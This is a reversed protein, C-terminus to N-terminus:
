EVVMMMSRVLDRYEELHMIGMDKNCARCVPMMNDVTTPGGLALPVVHGCEMDHFELSKECTYCRGVLSKPDNINEWVKIRVAVPIRERRKEKTLAYVDTECPARNQLVCHIILDLWEYRRWAGLFCVDSPAKAVCDDFRKLADASLKAKNTPAEYFHKLWDNFAAVADILKQSAIGAHALRDGVNRAQLATKLGECGLYPCHTKLGSKIYARYKSAFWAVFPGEVHEWTTQLELPHIPTHKNIRGYYMSLETRDKVRHLVIPVTVDSLSYGLAKLMAFAKLRHQGDVVFLEDDLRAVTMSQLISFCGHRQMELREDEVMQLVYTENLTRQLRPITFTLVREVPVVFVETKRDVICAAM